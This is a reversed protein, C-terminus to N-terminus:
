YYQRSEVVPKQPKDFVTHPPPGPPLGAVSAGYNAQATILNKLRKLEESAHTQFVKQIWSWGAGVGYIAFGTVIDVFSGSASPDLAHHAVLYVGFGTIVHRIQGAIVPKAQDWFSLETDAM